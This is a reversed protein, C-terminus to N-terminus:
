QLCDVKFIKLVSSSNKDPQFAVNLFKQHDKKVIPLREKVRNMEKKDPRRRNEMDITM